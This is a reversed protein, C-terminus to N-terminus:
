GKKCDVSNARLAHLKPIVCRFGSSALSDLLKALAALAVPSGEHLLIISGTAAAKVIRRVIRDSSMTKTDFARVSWGVIWLGHAAVIPHVFPNKMGAPPRFLAPVPLGHTQAVREFGAIERRIQNPTFRWFQFVPHSHTHNGVSHGAALIQAVLEPWRSAKQGILFFTAKAGFQDLLKLIHPTTEPDPGDDITLWVERRTTSFRTFVPGFGQFTPIITTLTLALHSFFLVWLGELYGGLLLALTVFPAAVIYWLTVTPRFSV